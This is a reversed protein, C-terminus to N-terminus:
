QAVSGKIPERGSGSCMRAAVFHLILGKDGCIRHRERCVPCIGTIPIGYM